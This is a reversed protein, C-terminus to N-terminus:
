GRRAEKEAIIRRECSKCPVEDYRCCHVEAPERVLARLARCEAQWDVAPRSECAVIARHLQATWEESPWPGGDPMTHRECTAM